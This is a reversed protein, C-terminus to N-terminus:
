FNARWLYQVYTKAATNKFTQGSVFTFLQITGFNKERKSVGREDTTSFPVVLDLNQSWLPVKSVLRQWWHRFTHPCPHIHRTLFWRSCDTSGRSPSYVTFTWKGCVLVIICITTTGLKGSKELQFMYFINFYLNKSGYLSTATSTHIERM